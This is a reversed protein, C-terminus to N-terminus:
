VLAKLIGEELKTELKVLPRPPPGELVEGERSFIGAHCPCTFHNDEEKWQVSCGLHTCTADFVVFTEGDETSAYVVGQRETNRWADKAKVSYNVRHIKGPELDTVAGVDVWKQDKPELSDGVLYRGAVGVTAIGGAGALTWFGAELLRRRSLSKEDWLIDPRHAVQDKKM